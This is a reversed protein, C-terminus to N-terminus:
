TGFSAHQHVLGATALVAGIWDLPAKGAEGADPLDEVYRAGLVLAGVAVPVNLLFMARWGVLDILWGGVLPGIAGAAAWTGIAKGRAEGEFSNGLIALSTPMLLAAGVGQLVRAALLWALSPAASCMLSAALFLGVGILLLRRHGYRDGAAGGM